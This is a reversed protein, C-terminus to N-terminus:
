KRFSGRRGHGFPGLILDGDFSTVESVNSHGRWRRCRAVVVMGGVSDTTPVPAQVRVKRRLDAGCAACGTRRVGASYMAKIVWLEIETLQCAEDSARGAQMPPHAAAYMWSWHLWEM